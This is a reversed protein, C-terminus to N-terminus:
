EYHILVLLNGYSILFSIEKKCTIMWTGSFYFMLKISGILMLCVFGSLFFGPQFSSPTCPFDLTTVFFDATHLKIIVIFLEKFLESLVVFVVSIKFTINVNEVACITWRWFINLGNSM